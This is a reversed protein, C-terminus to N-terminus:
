VVSEEVDGRRKMWVHDCHVMGLGNQFHRGRFNIFDRLPDDLESREGDPSGVTAAHRLQRSLQEGGDSCM